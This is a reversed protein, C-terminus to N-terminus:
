LASFATPTRPSHPIDILLSRENHLSVILTRASHSGGFLLSRMAICLSQSLAHVTHATPASRPTSHGSQGAESIAELGEQRGDEHEQRISQQRM